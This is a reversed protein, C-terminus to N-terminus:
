YVEFKENASISNFSRGPPISSIKSQKIFEMVPIISIKVTKESKIKHSNKTESFSVNINQHYKSYTGGFLAGSERTIITLSKNNHSKISKHSSDGLFDASLEDNNKGIKMIYAGLQDMDTSTSYNNKGVSLSYLFANGLKGIPVLFPEPAAHPSLNIDYVGPSPVRYLSVSGEIIDTETKAHRDITSNYSKYSVWSTIDTPSLYIDTIADHKYTINMHFVGPDFYVPIDPFERFDSTVGVRASCFILKKTDSLKIQKDITVFDNGFLTRLEHGRIEYRIGDAYSVIIKDILNSAATLTNNPSVFNELTTDFDIYEVDNLAKFENELGFMVNELEINNADTIVTGFAALMNGMLGGDDDLILALKKAINKFQTTSYFGLPLYQGYITEFANKIWDIHETDKDALKKHLAFIANYPNLKTIDKDTNDLENPKKYSYGEGLKLFLDVFGCRELTTFKEPLSDILGKLIMISKKVEATSLQKKAENTNLPVFNNKHGNILGNVNALNDM